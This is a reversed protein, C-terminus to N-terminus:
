NKKKNGFMNTMKLSLRSREFIGSVLSEVKVKKTNDNKSLHVNNHVSKLIDKRLTQPPVTSTDM